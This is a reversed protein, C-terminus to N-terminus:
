SVQPRDPLVTVDVFTHLVNSPPGTLNSAGFTWTSGSAGVKTVLYAFPCLTDPVFPFNPPTLFLATAGNTAGDLDYLSGQVVKLATAATTSTGDYCLVFICGKSATVPVFAAGTVADTTPTAANTAALTLTRKGRISILCTTATTLTTTTGASTAGGYTCINMGRYNLNDM